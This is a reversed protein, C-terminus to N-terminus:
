IKTSTILAINVSTQFTKTSTKTPWLFRMPRIILLDVEILSKREMQGWWLIEPQWLYPQHPSTISIQNLRHSILAKIKITSAKKLDSMTITQLFNSSTMESLWNNNPALVILTLLSTPIDRIRVWTTMIPRARKWRTIITRIRFRM